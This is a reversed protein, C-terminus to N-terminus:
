KSSLSPRMKRMEKAVQHSNYDARMELQRIVEKFNKDDRNQSLKYAPDIKTITIEFGVIGQLEHKFYKESLNEVRVPRASDKEYQELLLRLSDILEEGEIIRLTGYVHVAIYNWTPVNEHDYWSSSVYAHPGQFIVLVENENWGKWQANGRAIHSTLRKGDASLHLPIHTAWPKNDAQSVLIGFGNQHIFDHVENLNENKFNKPLYM